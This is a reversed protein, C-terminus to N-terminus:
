MEKFALGDSKGESFAKEELRLLMHFLPKLL